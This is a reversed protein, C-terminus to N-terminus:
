NDQTFNFIMFDFLEDGILALSYIDSTHGYKKGRGVEPAQYRLDGIDSTHKHTTKYNIRKEHITALGFDCLKFFRGNRVSSKILINEPKLDRHIIQPNYEHLYQVSELIQRFIECSIFYEVCDMPHGIQRGFVQPKIELIDRLSQSCLEMQIYICNGERWSDYYKVVYESQVRLLNNGEKTANSKQYENLKQIKIAYINHDKKNRVKLVTGFAGIGIQSKNFKDLIDKCDPRKDWEHALM